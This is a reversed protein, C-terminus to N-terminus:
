SLIRLPERNCCVQECLGNSFHLILLMSSKFFVECSILIDQLKGIEEIVGTSIMM